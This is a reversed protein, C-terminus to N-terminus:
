HSKHVPKTETEKSKSKPQNNIEARKYDVLQLNIIQREKQGEIKASFLEKAFKPININFM